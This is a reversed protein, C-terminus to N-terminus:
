FVVLIVKGVLQMTCTSYMSTGMCMGVGQKVRGMCIGYCALNLAADVLPVGNRYGVHRHHSLPHWCHDGTTFVLWLPWRVIM